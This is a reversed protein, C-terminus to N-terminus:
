NIDLSFLNWLVIYPGIELTCLYLIFYFFNNILLKQYSKISKMFGTFVILLSIVLTAVLLTPQNPAGFILFSNLPLLLVGLLNLFSVQQFVYSHFLKPIDFLYGIGLELLIKILAGAGLLGAIKIFIFFDLELKQVFHIYSLLGFLTGNICFNLFLVVDFPDLFTHDKFYIRLYNSPGLLRLFDTFRKYNILKATAIIALSVVIIATYLDNFLVERLM